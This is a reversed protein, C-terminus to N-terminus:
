QQAMLPPLLNARASYHPQDTLHFAALAYVAIALIMIAIGLLPFGVEQEASRQHYKAILANRDNHASTPASPFSLRLEEELKATRMLRQGGIRDSKFKVVDGM